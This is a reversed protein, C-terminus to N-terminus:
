ILTKMKELYIDLLPIASDYPLINKSFVQRQKRYHGYGSVNGDATCPNGKRWMRVLM